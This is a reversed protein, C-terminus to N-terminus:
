NNNKRELVRMGLLSIVFLSVAFPFCWATLRPEKDIYKYTYLAGAKFVVLLGMIFTFTKYHCM